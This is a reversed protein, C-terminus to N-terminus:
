YTITIVIVDSGTSYVACEMGDIRECVSLSEVSDRSAASAADVLMRREVRDAGASQGEQSPVVFSSGHNLVKSVSALDAGAQPGGAVGVQYPVSDPCSVALTSSAGVVAAAYTTFVAPQHSVQCSPEVVASVSFSANSTTGFAPRSGIGCIALIVACMCSALRLRM